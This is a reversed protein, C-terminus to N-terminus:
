KAQGGKLLARENITTYITSSAIAAIIIIGSVLSQYASEINAVYILKSVLSMIIAGVIAMFVNGKGGTLAVGGVVAAAVCQLTLPDGLRASGAQNQATLFLACFFIFVANILYATLQVKATNIGSQYAINRNSGVAYIYRGTKTRSVCYWIVAAAIILLVGTPIAQGFAKLAEPMADVSAFDYFARMWNVAEGGPTPMIFLAAGLWVYSTAFTAIIPPLKLYGVAVGNVIGVILMVVFGMLLATIGTSPDDKKMISTMVCMMFAMAPGSSLDLGGAIIVVAQGMALLILPTWSIISNRLSSPEFFNGQLVAVIVIMAVFIILTAFEPRHMFKQFGNRRTMEKESM